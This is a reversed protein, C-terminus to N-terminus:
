ARQYEVLSFRISLETSDRDTDAVFYLIDTPSLNFGVPENLSVTNEVSTDLTKRFVEYRTSVPLNYVYAKVTVKPSGGAQKNTNIWLLKAVADHNHGTFFIAQQTVSQQAPVVAQTSGGTTATITIVSQNYDASGSASVAVRNIGYGSFSTTDTGDTGLNHAAIAPNGNSDIYYFTLQTAGNTGSGDTSGGATGDYAIDFTSAATLPTFNGTTAWVTQEGSAAALDSRYGFKTWGTVGTRRGIRIEDEGLTPRIWTADQDLGISQNMPANPQTHTGYYTYIRLYTQAGTDNVFRVRFYRSNVRATHYEHIGDAVEFGNTPFTDANVGDNSFDFYLTGTNDAKCSVTVGDSPAREWAGTFTAGSSLPTTTTNGDSLISGGSQTGTGQAPAWTM